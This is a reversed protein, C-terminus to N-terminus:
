DLSVSEITVETAPAGDPGGDATGKKAVDRVLEVSKEDLEGFVTYSPPLQTDDYVIFFQSGGTDPQGTNAMALVGAPYGGEEAQELEDPVTYGPGGTGTGTPDGCQLVFIGGTTLRHCPTDDYYGQEALSAFSGVTCPATEADLVANLTGISTEVSAQVEGSVEAQEPPATVERSPEQGDSEYACAAATGGSEPSTSETATDGSDDGCAALAPTLLLGAVLLASRRASTRRPTM